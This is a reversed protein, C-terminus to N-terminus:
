TKLLDGASMSPEDTRITRKQRCIQALMGCFTADQV